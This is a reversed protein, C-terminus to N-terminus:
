YLYHPNDELNVIENIISRKAGRLHKKKMLKTQDNREIIAM